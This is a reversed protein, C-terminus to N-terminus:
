LIKNVVMFCSTINTRYYISCFVPSPFTGDRLCVYETPSSTTTTSKCIVNQPFDCSKTNSNYLLGSSCSVEYEVMLGFSSKECQMYKSCDSSHPSFRQGSPCTTYDVSIAECVVNQRLDCM